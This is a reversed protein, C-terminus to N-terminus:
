KARHYTLGISVNNMFFRFTGGFGFGDIYKFRKKSQKFLKTDAQYGCVWWTAGVPIQNFIDMDFSAMDGPSLAIAPSSNSNDWRIEFRANCVDKNFLNITM